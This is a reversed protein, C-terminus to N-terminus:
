AGVASSDNFMNSDVEYLRRAVKRGRGPGKEWVHYRGVKSKRDLIDKLEGSVDSKFLAVNNGLPPLARM